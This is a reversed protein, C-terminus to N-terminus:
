RFMKGVPNNLFILKRLKFDNGFEGDRIKRAFQNGKRKYVISMIENMVCPDNMDKYLAECADHDEEKIDWYAGDVIAYNYVTNNKPDREICLVLVDMTISPSKVNETNVVPPECLREMEKGVKTKSIVDPYVTANFVLKSQGRKVTKVEVAVAADYSYIDFKGQSQSRYWTYDSFVTKLHEYIKKSNVDLSGSFECSRSPAGIFRSLEFALIKKMKNESKTICIKEGPHVYINSSAGKGLVRSVKSVNEKVKQLKLM